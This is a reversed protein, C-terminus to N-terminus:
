PLWQFQPMNENWLAEAVNRVMEPTVQTPDISYVPLTDADPLFESAEIDLRGDPMQVPALWSGSGVLLPIVGSPSPIGTEEPPKASTSLNQTTEPDAQQTEGSPAQAASITAPAPQCATTFCTLGLTGAVVLTALRAMRSSKAKVFIRRIRKEVQRASCTGAFSVTGEGPRNTGYLHLITRAYDAREIQSWGEVVENDCAEEMDEHIKRVALWVVPDFWHVVRLLALLVLLFPDKRRYHTLEHMMSIRMEHKSKSESGSPYLVMNPVLLALGRVTGTVVLHPRPRLRLDACCALYIDEIQEGPQRFGHHIHSRLRAYSALAWCAMVAMGAIWIWVLVGFVADSSMPRSSPFERLTTDPGATAEHVNAGAHGAATIANSSFSHTSGDEANEAGAGAGDPANAQMAQQVPLEPVLHVGSDFTM